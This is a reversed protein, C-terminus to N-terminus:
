AMRAGGIHRRRWRPHPSPTAPRPASPTAADRRQGGTLQDDASPQDAATSRSGDIPRRAVARPPDRDAPM